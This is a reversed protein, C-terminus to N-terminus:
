AACEKARIDMGILRCVEFVMDARNLAYIHFQRIGQELLGMIQEAAFAAAVGRPDESGDDLGEFRRALHPPIRTGCKEALSCIRSFNAIPMIGPVIPIDIGRARVRELYRFYVDNDFFFQTLANDAGNDVKAALMDLDANLDPSEPHKEPYAAVSIRFNGMARISRVLAAANEYGQPHPSYRQGIGGQPDGRLAVIHRIGADRYRCVIEDVEARAAGVCTLHGAAPVDTRRMLEKLTALTNDRTSGGAGYTVSMFKPALMGLRDVAAWLNAEAEPSRAPFLEFSLEIASPEFEVTHIGAPQQM